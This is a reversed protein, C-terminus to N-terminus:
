EAAGDLWKWLLVGDVLEVRCQLARESGWPFVPRARDCLKTARKPQGDGPRM